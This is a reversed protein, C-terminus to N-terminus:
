SSSQLMGVCLRLSFTLVRAAAPLEISSAPLDVTQCNCFAKCISVYLQSQPTDAISNLDLRCVLHIWLQRSSRMAASSANCAHLCLCALCASPSDCMSQAALRPTHCRM